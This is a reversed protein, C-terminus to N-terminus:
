GSGGGLVRALAASLEDQTVFSEFRAAIRGDAGVIFTWEDTPIRWQKLVPNRVARALDGHIQDPNEYIDVHLFDARGAFQQALASAVDVEPGCLPNTCFAPSAFVVVFPTHAALAGAISVRYLAPDPTSATTLQALSSVDAATRNQSPPAADGVDLAQTHEAVDFTFSVVATSGGPRPVHVDLGWRGARDFDLSLVDLGRSGDPFPTFRATVRQVPGERPGSAPDFFSDVQLAPLAIVGQADSMTFAVRRAGVALDPTGLITRIGTAADSYTPYGAGFLPAPTATPTAPGGRAGCASLAALAAALLLTALASRRLRRLRIM